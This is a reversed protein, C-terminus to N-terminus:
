LDSPIQIFTDGELKYLTHLKIKMDTCENLPKKTFYSYIVRCVAQHAIILLTNDQTM